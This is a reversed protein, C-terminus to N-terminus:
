SKKSTAKYKEIQKDRKEIEKQLARINEVNSKKEKEILDRYTIDKIGILKQHEKKNEDLLKKNNIQLTLYSFELDANKNKYFVLLQILDERTLDEM